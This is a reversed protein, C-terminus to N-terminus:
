GVSSVGCQCRRVGEPEMGRYWIYGPPVQKETKTILASAPGSDAPNSTPCIPLHDGPAIRGDCM